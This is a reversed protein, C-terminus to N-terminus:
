RLLSCILSLVDIRGLSPPLGSEVRATSLIQFPSYFPVLALAFFTNAAHPGTSPLEDAAPTILVFLVGMAALIAVAAIVFRSGASV